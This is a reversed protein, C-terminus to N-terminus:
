KEIWEDIEKEGRKNELLEVRDQLANVLGGLANMEAHYAKRLDKSEEILGNIGAM